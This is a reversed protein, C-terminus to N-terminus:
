DQVEKNVDSTRGEYIIYDWGMIAWQVEGSYGEYEYKMNIVKCDRQFKENLIELNDNSM